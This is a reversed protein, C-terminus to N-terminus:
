RTKIADHKSWVWEQIELMNESFRYGAGGLEPEANKVVCVKCTIDEEWVHLRVATQARLPSSVTAVAAGRVGVCVSERGVSQPLRSSLVAHKHLQAFVNWCLVELFCSFAPEPQINGFSWNFYCAVLRKKTNSPWVVLSFKGSPKTRKFLFVIGLSWNM